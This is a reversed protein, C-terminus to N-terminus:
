TSPVPPGTSSPTASPSSAATPPWWGTARGDSTAAMGVIPKNLHIAGTSGHFQADGFAFIGGDSAVLWYGRGDSTPAMGVIPKNLHIAGTSGHFQADGFAFIGGDSAVLWYQKKAGPPVNAASVNIPGSTGTISSNVSDTATITQTGATPLTAHSSFTHVGKDRVVFTYSAPLHAAGDSSTFTVTGLYGTATNGNADLATVTVDFPAGATATAPATVSVHTTPGPAVNIPGSTGTISSNVSDTATITQTGANPLTAHSSFTHVGKDRVVFTYSAPLHAAGDSSTFTVTGLYGTATNGNADLATVTVDFPAGATATAPATVSVHTTPGPAVNIPGSTGTISSNVSDTATITQTGATPLTAHSSFTHVGKDRVVFTYSAPLHAAGDSSTFTVTGLYGTATNGNADLATVTVDFPAGATATAPATVSVHTTPGPTVYTIAIAIPGSGVTIASGTTKTATDIPTVTGAGQNAVYATSGVPTIAIARPSNGVAIPTGATAPLTIPTVTGAGQNAVYATSGDPAIAVAAPASGVTIPTGAINTATDIPTVTDDGNNTVYATSGDPTIAVAIPESGVAIPTGATDTATDIPTVTDDGNNAVYATSGDPTIAVADPWTGVTIPTGATDTSTNIPTVTGDGNNTVYATSGDPTIAIADPSNGM